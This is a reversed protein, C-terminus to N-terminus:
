IGFNEFFIVGKSTIVEIPGISGYGVSNVTINGNQIIPSNLLQLNGPWNVNIKYSLISANQFQIPLSYVVNQTLGDFDNFLFSFIEKVGDISITFLYTNLSAPAIQIIGDYGTMNSQLVSGGNNDQFLIAKGALPKGSADRAKLVILGSHFGLYEIYGTSSGHKAKYELVIRNERDVFEHRSGSVTRLEAVKSHATQDDWPMGFHYTFNLGFETDTRGRATSRQTIFGSVLPVPTYEIGYSWVRPDKELNQHGFM